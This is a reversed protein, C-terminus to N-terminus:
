PTSEPEKEQRTQYDSSQSQGQQEQPQLRSTIMALGEYYNFPFGTCLQYINLQTRKTELKVPHFDM